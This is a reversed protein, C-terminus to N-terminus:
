ARGDCNRLRVTDATHTQTRDRLWAMVAQHRYRIRGGCRIYPLSHRGSSRWSALTKVSVGMLEATQKPTLLDVAVVSDAPASQLAALAPPTVSHLYM